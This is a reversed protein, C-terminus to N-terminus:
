GHSGAEWGIPALYSNAFDMPEDELKTALTDNWRNLFGFAAIVGLIAVCEDESFYKKAEEFHADTTENPVSAAAQALALAAKEAPTFLDSTQYEWLAKIKEAPIDHNSVGRATHAQCYRCGAAQSAINAIMQVLPPPLPSGPGMVAGMMGLFGQLLAPQRAMIRLSNPVFVMSAKAMDLLEASQNLKDEPAITIRQM